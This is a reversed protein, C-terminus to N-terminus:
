VNEIKRRYTVIFAGQIQSSTAMYDYTVLEWGEAAKENFENNLIAADEPTAKDSWFKASVKVIETKYQYM